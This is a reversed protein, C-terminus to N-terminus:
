GYAIDYLLRQHANPIYARIGVCWGGDISGDPELTYTFHAGYGKLMVGQDTSNIWEGIRLKAMLNPDDVDDMYFEYVCRGEQM